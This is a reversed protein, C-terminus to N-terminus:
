SFMCYLLYTTSTFKFVVCLRRLLCADAPTPFYQDAHNYWATM